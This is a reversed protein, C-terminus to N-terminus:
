YVRGVRYITEVAVKGGTGKSIREATEYSVPERHMHKYVSDKSVKAVKAFTYPKQDTFFLYEKLTM